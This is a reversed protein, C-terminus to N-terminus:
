LNKLEPGITGELGGGKIVHCSLCNGKKRDFVITRGEAASQATPSQALAPASAFPAGLSLVLMATATLAPKM